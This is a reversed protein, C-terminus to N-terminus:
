WTHPQTNGARKVGRFKMMGGGNEEKRYRERRPKRERGRVRVRCQADGRRKVGRVSEHEGVKRTIKGPM